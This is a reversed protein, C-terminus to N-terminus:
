PKPNPNLHLLCIRGDVVQTPVAELGNERARANRVRPPSGVWGEDFALGLAQVRFVLGYVRFGLGGHLHEWSSSPTSGHVCPEQSLLRVLHVSSGSYKM